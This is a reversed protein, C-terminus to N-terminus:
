RMDGPRMRAVVDGPRLGPADGQRMAFKNPRADNVLPQGAPKAVQLGQQETPLSRDGPHDVFQTPTEDPLSPPPNSSWASTIGGFAMRPPDRDLDPTPISTSPVALATPNPADPEGCAALALISFAAFFISKM